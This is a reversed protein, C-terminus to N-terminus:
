TFVGVAWTCALWQPRLHRAKAMAALRGVAVVCEDLTLLAAIDRSSLM